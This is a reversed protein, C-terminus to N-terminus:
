NPTLQIKSLMQFNQYNCAFIIHWCSISIAIKRGSSNQLSAVPRFSWSNGLRSNFNREGVITGRTGLYREVGDDMTTRQVPQTQDLFQNQYSFIYNNFTSGHRPWMFNSNTVFINVQCARSPSCSFNSGDQWARM